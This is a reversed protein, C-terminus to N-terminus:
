WRGCRALSSLHPVVMDLHVNVDTDMHMDAMCICVHVHVYVRICRARACAYPSCQGGVASQNCGSLATTLVTEDLHKPCGSLYVSRPAKPDDFPLPHIRGVKTVDVLRLSSLARSGIRCPVARTADPRECLCLCYPSM